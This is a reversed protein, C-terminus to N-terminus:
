SVSGRNRNLRFPPKLLADRHFHGALRHQDRARGIADAAVDSGLERRGAGVDQDMTAAFRPGFRQGILYAAFPVTFRCEVLGIQRRQGARSLEGFRHNCLM